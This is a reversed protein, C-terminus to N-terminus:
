EGERNTRSGDYRGAAQFRPWALVLVGILVVGLTLAYGLPGAIVIFSGGVGASLVLQAALVGILGALALGRNRGLVRLGVGWAAVLALGLILGGPAFSRHHLTTIVGIFVGVVGTLALLGFGALRQRTV